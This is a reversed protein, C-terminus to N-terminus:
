EPSIYYPTGVITGSITLATNAEALKALGFDGIKLEGSKTFMLNEPKIDRHTLGHNWAYCLAEMVALAVQLIQDEEMGKPSNSVFSALSQGDIYELVLYYLDEMRGSDYGKIIHPHDLKKSIEVERLFRNLVVTNDTFEPNLIKIAVEKELKHSYALYVIGLGGTGIAKKISYGPILDELALMQYVTDKDLFKKEVSIEALSKTIGKEKCKVQEEVCINLQTRSLRQKNIAYRGWIIDKLSDM